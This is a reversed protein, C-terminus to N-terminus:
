SITGGDSTNVIIEVLFLLQFVERSADALVNHSTLCRVSYSRQQPNGQAAQDEEVPKQSSQTHEQNNDPSTGQNGLSLAICLLTTLHTHPLCTLTQHSNFVFISFRNITIVYSPKRSLYCNM